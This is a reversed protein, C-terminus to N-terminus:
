FAFAEANGNCTAGRHTSVFDAVLKFSWLLAGFVAVGAGSWHDRVAISNACIAFEESVPATLGVELASRELPVLSVARDNTILSLDFVAISGAGEHAQDLITDAVFAKVAAVKM